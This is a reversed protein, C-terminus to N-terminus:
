GGVLNGGTYSSGGFLRVGAWRWWSMPSFFGLKLKALPSHKQIYIRFRRDAEARTIPNGYVDCGTRYAIDHEFCGDLHFDPVGSCGDSGLEKAKQRVLQRYEETWENM